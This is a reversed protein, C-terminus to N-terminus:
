LFLRTSNTSARTRRQHFRGIPLSHHSNSCAGNESEDDERVKDYLDLELTDLVSQVSDTIPTVQSDFGSTASDFGELTNSANLSQSHITYFGLFSDVIMLADKKVFDTGNFIDQADVAAEM